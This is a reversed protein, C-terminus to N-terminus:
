LDPQNEREESYIEAIHSVINEFATTGNRGYRERLLYEDSYGSLLEAAETISANCEPCSPSTTHLVQREQLFEICSVINFIIEKSFM